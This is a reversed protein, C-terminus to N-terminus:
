ADMCLITSYFWILIIPLVSNSPPRLTCSALRVPPIEINPRNKNRRTGYSTMWNVAAEDDMHLRHLGANIKTLSRSNVTRSITQTEGCACRDGDSLWRLKRCAACHDQVTHFRNVLSWQHRRLDFGLQWCAPDDVLFEQGDYGVPAM